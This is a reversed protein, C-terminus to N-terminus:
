IAASARRADRERLAEYIPRDRVGAAVLYGAIATIAQPLLLNSRHTLEVVLVLGTLPARVSASFVGVMGATALVPGLAGSGLSPALAHVVAGLTAGLVLQPAFIGGPVGCGYSALTLVLKLALLLVLSALPSPSGQVLIRATSEGSGIAAPLWCAVLAAFVGVAAARLPPPVRRMSEFAALAGLLGRNFVVGLIGAGIGLAAFLPLVWPSPAVVSPLSFMPQSGLFATTVVYSALVAPLGTSIMLLNPAVRLEELLFVAGAIPASFAATLGAAAGAALLARRATTGLGGEVASAMAAGLHVTPGERGLSLGAGLAVAGAVFKVPLLRKWRLRGDHALTEEVHPIGSGAAEPAFRVTLWAALGAGFAFVAALAIWGFVTGGLRAILAHRWPDGLDLVSRYSSGVIGALVGAVTARLCAQLDLPRTRRDSRPAEVV